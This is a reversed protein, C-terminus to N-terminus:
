SKETDDEEPNLTGVCLRCDGSEDVSREVYRMKHRARGRNASIQYVQQRQSDDDETQPPTVPETKKSM